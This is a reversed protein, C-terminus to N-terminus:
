ELAKKFYDPCQGKGKEQTQMAHEDTVLMDEKHCKKDSKNKRDHCWNTMNAEENNDERPAMAKNKGDFNALVAKEWTAYKTAVDLLERMM